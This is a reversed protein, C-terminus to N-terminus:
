RSPHPASAGHARRESWQYLAAGMLGGAVTGALAGMPGAIIGVLTGATIASGLATPSTIDDVTLHGASNETGPEVRPGPHGPRRNSRAM